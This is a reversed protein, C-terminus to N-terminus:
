TSMLHTNGKSQKENGQGALETNRSQSLRHAKDVLWKSKKTVKCNRGVDTRM